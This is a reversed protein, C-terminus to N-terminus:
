ALGERELVGAPDDNDQEDQTLLHGPQFAVTGEYVKTCTPCTGEGGDHLTWGDERLAAEAKATSRIEDTAEIDHQGLCETVLGRRCTITWTRNERLSM